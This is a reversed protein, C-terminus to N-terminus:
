TSYTLTKKQGKSMRERADHLDYHEDMLTELTPQSFNTSQPKSIIVLPAVTYSFLVKAKYEPM